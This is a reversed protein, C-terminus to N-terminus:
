LDRFTDSLTCNAELPITEHSCKGDAGPYACFLNDFSRAEQVVIVIHQIKGSSRGLASNVAAPSSPSVAGSSCASATLVLGALFLTSINRSFM